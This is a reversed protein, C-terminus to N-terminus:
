IRYRGGNGREKSSRHRKVNPKILIFVADPNGFARRYRTATAFSLRALFGKRINSVGGFEADGDAFVQVEWDDNLGGGYFHGVLGHAFKREDAPILEALCEFSFPPHELALAAAM